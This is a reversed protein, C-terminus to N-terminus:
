PPFTPSLNQEKNAFILGLKTDLANNQIWIFNILNGPISQNSGDGHESIFGRLTLMDGNVNEFNTFTLEIENGKIKCSTSANTILNSSTSSDTPPSLTNASMGITHAVSISKVTLNAHCGINVADSTLRDNMTLISGDINQLSNKTSTMGFNNGQLQYTEGSFIPSSSTFLETAIIIGKGRDLPDTVDTTDFVFALNKGNQTSHGQPATSGGDLKIIGQESTLSSRITKETFISHVTKFANNPVSSNFSDDNQRSLLHTQYHSDPQTVSINGSMVDWHLTEAYLQMVANSDNMKLSYSIVGYKKGNIDNISFTDDTELGHIEWSFLDIDELKEGRVNTGGQTTISYNSGQSFNASTLWTPAAGYNITIPQTQSLLTSSDPETDNVKYLKNFMPELQWGVKQSATSNDPVVQELTRENVLFSQTTLLSDDFSSTMSNIPENRILVFNNSSNISLTTRAFPIDTVINDRRMDLLSITQNLKPYVPLVSSASASIIKSTSAGILVDNFTDNPKINSFSLSFLASNYEKPITLRSRISGDTISFSRRTGKSFPSITRTIEKVAAEIHNKFDIRQDLAAMAATVSASATVNIDYAQAAKTIQKLLTSKATAQTPCQSVSSACLRLNNIDAPTSITDFLKKLVYHTKANVIIEKSKNPTKHLEAYLTEGSNFKVRLVHNVQEIYSKDFEILYKAGVTRNTDFNTKVVQYFPISDDSVEQFNENLAVITIQYPEIKDIDGNISEVSVPIKDKPIFPDIVQSAGDSNNSTTGRLKNSSNSIGCAQLLIMSLLSILTVAFVNNM